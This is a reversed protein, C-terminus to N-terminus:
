RSPSLKKALEEFWNFVLNVQTIRVTPTASQRVGYFRQGDASVAFPTLTGLGYFMGDRPFVFLVRPASPAAPRSTDVVMMRDGAADPEVYFLERGAPSWAPSFGGRASVLVAADSGPYRQVYIENRGTIPSSYALARGDPSWAPQLENAGPHPLRVPLVSRKRPAHVWLDGDFLGVLEGTPSFASAWFGTSGEVPVAEAAAGPRVIVASVKGGDVVQMAIEDDRSWAAVILEGTLGEALRTMTGRALDYAFAQIGSATQVSVALQRGNPSLVVHSRYGKPPAGLVTVRGHRDVTVLKRDSYSALPSSVYALTGQPSVAFQGALTLDVSDWAVIAQSVDPLVPVPDGAVQLTNVNFPVVFLTGQRMFALHGTPLYRADAANRVLLRPRAGPTLSLVMVREDGSTWQKEYETYLITKGDPLFSPMGSRVLERAATLGHMDAGEVTSFILTGEGVVLGAPGWAMGSVDKAIRITASPGGAVSVRRLVTDVWYAIEDGAPSFTLARAGETGAIPRAADNSLDRLFVRRVGNQVGIFALTQGNPSWALATRAGGATLLISPHVGGANLETAPSVGIHAYAVQPADTASRWLMVGIALGAGIGLVGFWVRSLWVRSSAPRPSSPEAAPALAEDLGFRADGIDQLRQRRDRTLCRELLRRIPAPVNAPLARWEPATMESVGFPRRGALMEFLVVGFAWIDARKDVPGDVAQEPAMYAATGLVAGDLTLTTTQLSDPPIEDGRATAGGADDAASDSQSQGQLALGFDLVKVTGDARVKINAPKLDRHVIGAEHAAALADAVQRAILVADTLSLAGRRIRWSLDEGEVLEMVLANGEIAYVTAINPHNLAGLARAEREFRLLRRPHAAMAAPLVKIAVDRRLRQDRGRYVEGMGGAGIVGVIEYPGVRSGIALTNM